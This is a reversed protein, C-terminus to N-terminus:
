GSMPPTLNRPADRNYLLYEHRCGGSIKEAGRRVGGGQEPQFVKGHVEGKLSTQQGGHAVHMKLQGRRGDGTQYALGAAAFAERGAGHQAERRFGGHEAAPRQQAAFVQETQRFFLQATDPATAHAHDKLLGHGREIGHQAHAFLHGLGQAQVQAHAPGFGAALRFAEERIHANGRRVAAIVVIGVLKGAAHALPHHDGHSQGAAGFQQQGVLGGGGQVGGDLALDQAQDQVLAPFAAHGHQQDGVIQAHHGFHRVHHADHVGPTQHFAGRRALKEGIGAVGVGPSQHM